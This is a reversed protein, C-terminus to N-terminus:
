YQLLNMVEKVLSGENRLVWMSVYSHFTYCVIHLKYANHTFHKRTGLRVLFMFQFGKFRYDSTKLM